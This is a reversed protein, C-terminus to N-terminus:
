ISNNELMPLYFVAIMEYTNSFEIGPCDELKCKQTEIAEGTCERGGNLSKQAITKESTKIGWGCTTSCETWVKIPSWECDVPEPERVPPCAEPNCREKSFATGECDKGGYLQPHLITRNAM